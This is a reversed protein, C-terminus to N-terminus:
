ERSQLLQVIKIEGMIGYPVLLYEENYKDPAPCFCADYTRNPKEKLHFPGMMNRPSGIVEVEIKNEGPVLWEGILIEQCFDWPLDVKHKNITVKVCVAEIKPLKLWTQAAKKDSEYTIFYKVSGCYHKLGQKTWDGINLGAPLTTLCREKNVGFGGSLYINELEMNNKYSCSLLLQNEGKRIEKLQCLQFEHDLLWGTPETNVAEGNLFVQFQNLGEVALSIGSFIQGAFFTFRLEVKHGDEPHIADVWKYRQEIGNVHVQRMHLHKRIEAQAQWVEMIQSWEEQDLRYCCYDLPLVNERDLEYVFPGGIRVEKVVSPEIYFVASGTPSLKVPIQLGEIGNQYPIKQIIKGSLPDMQVPVAQFPLRAKIEKEQRRNNNVLFLIYGEGAKRLQYLVDTCEKGRTEEINISRYPELAEALKEKELVVWHPHSILGKYQEWAQKSGDAMFPNEELVYVYGGQKLYASLIECTAACLSDMHPLVVVQYKAEGIYFKGERAAGFQSILLEDGLDCGLHQRELYEILHNLQQGYENLAPIDREQNRKPNGYPNVGLKSWVTGVPHLLLINKIVEGQELVVSLRAFYDDVIKNEMWWNTNYNFSPPYDRKRCGRLSYLALHQCRRNVGLVFQWDGMWKQGEFTFEWGTCGYTESLVVKKGLQHAVSACQSITMYEKTQECLMDIGPVHQYQYNPMIAGNVRTCLGMKDEQLFHGTFYLHNKECWEGIVKFYSEGYRRTISHWYDYRVKASQEGHFYFWPLVELFDYGAIEKFYEGYGYTWPVWSRHEGFYAHNDNLSPEDTFIGPITKGFEEGVVEKYREHTEKIFLRVCDLNLNDPPAEHNFWESPASVQLRVALLSEGEQFEELKKLSLRRYAQIKDGEIIAAYGALLGSKTDTFELQREIEEKYLKPYDEKKLVELTLGKCRFADGCSTVRGGATGSPWRDEDYLWAYMGLRKAEEVVAKVCELWKAGLYETELGDRSHIFFGGVGAQKMQRVQQVLEEKDLRGNWAWFPLSRKEAGPNEFQAAWEMGM